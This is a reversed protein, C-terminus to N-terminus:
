VDDMWAEYDPETRRYVCVLGATPTPGDYYEVFEEPKVPHDFYLTRGDKRATM